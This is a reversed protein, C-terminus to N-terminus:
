WLLQAACTCLISWIVNGSVAWSMLYPLHICEENDQKSM